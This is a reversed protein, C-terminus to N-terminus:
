SAQMATTISGHHSCFPFLKKYKLNYNLSVQVQLDVLTQSQEFILYHPLPADAIHKSTKFFFFYVDLIPSPPMTGTPTVNNELTQYQTELHSLPPPPNFFEIFLM